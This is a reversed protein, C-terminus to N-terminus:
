KVRFREVAPTPDENGADDIAVAMIRHRGSDLSLSTRPGCERWKKGDLRCRFTAPDEDSRLVVRARGPRDLVKVKITTEPPDTDPPTGQDPPFTLLAQRYAERHIERYLAKNSGDYSAMQPCQALYDEWSQGEALFPCPIRAADVYFGAFVLRRVVQGEEWHPLWTLSTHVLNSYHPPSCPAPATPCVGFSGGKHVSELQERFLDLHELRGLETALDRLQVYSLGYSLEGHLMLTKLKESSAPELLTGDFAATYFGAADAMTWVSPPADGCLWPSVQTDDFGQARAYATMAEIGFFQMMGWTANNNSDVMMRTITEELPQVQGGSSPCGPMDWPIPTELSVTGLEVQRMAYVAILFKIASAPNIPVDEQYSAHEPGGVEAAYFGHPATGWGDALAELRADEGSLVERPNMVLATFTDSDGVRELDYVRAGDTGAAVLQQSTASTLWAWRVATPNPVTIATYGTGDVEVDLLRRGALGSRLTSESVSYEITSAAQDAGTDAIMVVNYTGAGVPDIDVPRAHNQALLSSIEAPTRGFYYWWSKGADGTNAVMVAAVTRDGTPGVQELDLIRLGNASRYAELEQASDFLRLQAGQRRFPHAAVGNAVLAADLRSGGSSLEIDTVRDGGAAQLEAPTTALRVQHPVAMPDNPEPDPAAAASGAVAVAALM